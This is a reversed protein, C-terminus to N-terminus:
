RQLFPSVWKKQGCPLGRELLRAHHLDQQSISGLLREVLASGQGPVQGRQHIGHVLDIDIGNAEQDFGACIGSDLIIVSPGGFIEGFSCSLLPEVGCQEGRCLSRSQSAERGCHYFDPSVYHGKEVVLELAAHGFSESELPFAILADLFLQFLHAWGALFRRLFWRGLFEYLAHIGVDCLIASKPGEEPLPLVIPEQLVHCLLEHVNGIIWGCVEPSWVKQGFGDLDGHM